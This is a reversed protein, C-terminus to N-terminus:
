IPAAAERWSPPNADDRSRHHRVVTINALTAAAHQTTAEGATPLSSSGGVTTRGNCRDIM